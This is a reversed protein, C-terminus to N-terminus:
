NTGAARVPDLDLLFNLRRTVANDDVAKQIIRQPDFPNLGFFSGKANQFRLAWDAAAAHDDFRRCEMRAPDLLIRIEVPANPCFKDLTQIASARDLDLVTM